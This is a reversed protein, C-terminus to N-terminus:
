GPGGAGGGGMGRGGWYRGDSVRMRAEREAPTLSELDALLPDDAAEAPPGPLQAVIWRVLRRLPGPRDRGTVAV